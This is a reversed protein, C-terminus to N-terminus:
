NLYLKCYRIPMLKLWCMKNSRAFLNQIVAALGSHLYHILDTRFLPECDTTQQINNPCASFFCDIKKSIIIVQEKTKFLRRGRVHIPIFAEIFNNSPNHESDCDDEENQQHEKEKDVSPACLRFQIGKVELTEVGSGPLCCLDVIKGHNDDQLSGGNEVPIQQPEMLPENSTGALQLENIAPIEIIKDSAFLETVFTGHDTM